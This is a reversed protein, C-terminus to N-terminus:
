QGQPKTFIMFHQWPLCTSDTSVWQFGVAAMEKKALAETMKHLDKIPVSPDEARYEVLALRGGPKLAKFMGEGMERPLSFEHYADVLLILDITNEKLRPGATSGHVPIVNDAEGAAIKSKIIDLMEQQVDVAYVYGKPVLEAIRFSFYGSGAGIDAVRDTPELDLMGILTDTREQEERNPRELWAAGQHGMVHAIERGMYSKGIGDLSPPTDKYHNDQAIAVAGISLLVSTLVIRLTTRM